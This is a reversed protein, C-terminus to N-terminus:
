TNLIRIVCLNHKRRCLSSHSNVRGKQGFPSWYALVDGAIVRRSPDKETFSKSQESKQDQDQWRQRKSVTGHNSESNRAWTQPWTGGM